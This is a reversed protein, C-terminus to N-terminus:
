HSALDENFIAALAGKLDDETCTTKALDEIKQSVQATNAYQKFMATKFKEQTCVDAEREDLHNRFTNYQTGVVSTLRDLAKQQSDFKASTEKILGETETAKSDQDKLRNKLIVM